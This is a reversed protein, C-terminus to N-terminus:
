EIKGVIAICKDVERLLRNVHARAKKRNRGDGALGDRVEALSLESELKKVQERLSRNEERLTRCEAVLADRQGVAKRHEDILRDVKRGINQVAEKSTMVARDTVRIVYDDM